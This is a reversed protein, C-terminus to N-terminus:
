ERAPLELQRGNELIVRWTPVWALGCFEVTVDARRPKVEFEDIEELKDAWRQSIDAIREGWEAGLEELDDELDEIVELSEEVDAKAKQTMTHRRSAYSIAHAPRRGTLLNLATEGLGLRTELKRAALDAEDRKLEREERRIKREVVGMEDRMRARAKKLDADLHEQVQKECRVRFDRRSEGVEGYLELAPNHLITVASNYYLYDSFDKAFRKLDRARALASPIPEYLGESMPKSLLDDDGVKAEGEEWDVSM